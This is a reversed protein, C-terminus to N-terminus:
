QNLAARSAANAGPVGPRGRMCASCIGHGSICTNAYLGPCPLVADGWCLTCIIILQYPLHGLGPVALSGHLVSFPVRGVGAM